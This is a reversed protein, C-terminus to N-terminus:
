SLDVRYSYFRQPYAGRISSPPSLSRRTAIRLSSDARVTRSPTKNGLWIDLQSLPSARMQTSQDTIFIGVGRQRLDIQRDSLIIEKMIGELKFIYGTGCRVCVKGSVIDPAATQFTELEIREGGVQLRIMPWRDDRVFSNYSLGFLVGDDPPVTYPFIVDTPWSVYFGRAEVGSIMVDRKTTNLLCYGGGASIAESGCLFLVFLLFSAFKM